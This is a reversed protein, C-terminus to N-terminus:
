FAGGGGGGSGGSFSIGSGGDQGAAHGQAYSFTDSFVGNCVSLMQASVLTFWVVDHADWSDDDMPKPIDPLKKILRKASGLSLAYPLFNDWFAHTDIDIQDINTLNKLYRKFALWKRYELEGHPSRRWYSEYYEMQDAEHKIFKAWDNFKEHFLLAADENKGIQQIIHLELNTGDGIGDFLWDMLFQEHSRLTRIFSFNRTFIYGGLEDTSITLIKERALNLLTAVVDKIKMTRDRVLYAMLAPGNDAPLSDYYKEDFDVKHPWALIFIVIIPILILALVGLLIVIWWPFPRDDIGRNTLRADPLWSDPFRADVRLAQGPRLQNGYSHFAIDNTAITVDWFPNGGVYITAALEGQGIPPAGEFTIRVEYADIPVDWESGIVYHNFQGADTFKSAVSTLTYSYVFTRYEDRSPTFIQFSTISGDRTVTYVGDDGLNARRVETFPIYQGTAPIYEWAQFNEIDGVGRRNIDRFVGNFQGVFRNTIREEVEASGDEYIHISIIFEVIGHERHPSEAYASVAVFCLLLILVSLLKKM